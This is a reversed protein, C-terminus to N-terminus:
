ETEVPIRMVESKTIKPLVIRLLGDRYTCESAEFSVAGSLAIRRRFEGSDIEMQRIRMLGSPSPSERRGSIQIIRGDLTVKLRDRDVGALDVVIVVHQEDEYVDAMPVWPTPSFLYLSRNIKEIM